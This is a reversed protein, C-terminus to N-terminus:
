TSPEPVTEPTLILTEVPVQLLRAMEHKHKDPIAVHGCAWRSVQVTTVNFHAAIDKRTLGRRKAAFFPTSLNM